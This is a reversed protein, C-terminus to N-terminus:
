ATGLTRFGRGQCQGCLEKDHALHWLKGRCEILGSSRLDKLWRDLAPSDKCADLHCARKLETKSQPGEAVAALILGYPAESGARPDRRSRM